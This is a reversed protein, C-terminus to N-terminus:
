ILFLPQALGTLAAIAPGSGTALTAGIALISLVVTEIKAIKAETM